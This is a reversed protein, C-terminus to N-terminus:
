PVKNLKENHRTFDFNDKAAAIFRYNLLLSSARSFPPQRARLGFLCLLIPLKCSLSDAAWSSGGKAKQQSFAVKLGISFNSLFPLSRNMHCERSKAFAFSFCGLHPFFIVLLHPISFPSFLIPPPLAPKVTGVKLPFYRMQKNRCSCNIHLKKGWLGRGIFSPWNFYNKLFFDM